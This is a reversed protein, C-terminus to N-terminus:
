LSDITHVQDLGEEDFSTSFWTDIIAKASENTTNVNGMVLVNADNWKRALKAIEPSVCLAARVGKVKNAAMCAGTGSWCFLIGMDAVGEVVTKGLELAINAWKGNPALLDGQLLVEHGLSKLYDVVFTNLPTLEDTAVVIKMHHNYWGLKSKQDHSLKKIEAERKQASGRDPFPETYIIKIPRFSRTYKAGQGSKHARFRSAVDKAIGTYYNDGECLLVYVWYTQKPLNPM